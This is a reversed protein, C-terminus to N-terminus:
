GGIVDEPDPEKLEEDVADKKKKFENIYGTVKEKIDGANEVVFDKVEKAAEITADSGLAGMAIGIDARALVPADNIGDGVMAVSGKAAYERLLATLIQNKLQALVAEETTVQRGSTGMGVLLGERELETLARQMTNPNVKAQTALERTSPVRQGPQLQGSVVASRLIDMIQQYVPKSDSFKWDM